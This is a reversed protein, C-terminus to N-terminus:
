LWRRKQRARKSVVTHRSLIRIDLIAGGTPLHKGSVNGNAGLAVSYLKGCGSSGRVRGVPEWLRHQNDADEKHAQM